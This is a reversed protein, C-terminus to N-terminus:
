RGKSLAFLRSCLTGAAVTIGETSLLKGASEDCLINASTPVEDDGVWMVVDIDLKPLLRVRYGVSGTRLAAGGLRELADRLTEPSDGFRSVILDITRKKYAPFYLAGGPFERFTVMNGSLEANGAGLLYHLLLVQVHPKVQSGDDLYTMSKSRVDLSCERDMLRLVMSGVESEYSSGSQKALTVLDSGLLAEWGLRLAERDGHLQEPMALGSTM